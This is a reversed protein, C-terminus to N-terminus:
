FIVIPYVFACNAWNTRKVSAGIFKGNDWNNPVITNSPGYIDANNWASGKELREDRVLNVEPRTRAPRFM